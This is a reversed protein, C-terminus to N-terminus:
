IGKLGETRQDQLQVDYKITQYQLSKAKIKKLLEKFNSASYMIALVGCGTFLASCAHFLGILHPHFFKGHEAQM